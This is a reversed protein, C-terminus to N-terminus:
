RCSYWQPRWVLDVEAPV